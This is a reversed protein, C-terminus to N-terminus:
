KFTKRTAENAEMIFITMMMMGSYYKYHQHFTLKQLAVVIIIVHWIM